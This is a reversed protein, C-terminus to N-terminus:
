QTETIFLHAPPRREMKGAPKECFFFMVRGRVRDLFLPGREVLDESLLSVFTQSAHIYIYIYIYINSYVDVCM